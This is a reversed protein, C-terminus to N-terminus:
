QEPQLFPLVRVGKADVQVQIAGGDFTRWIQSGVARYPAEVEPLNWRGDSSFVVHRPTCWAALNPLNSKRSGHHPAMLVECPRRSETLLSDLGPAELDGPLLIQRGLYDVALVLSNANGHGPIGHAPPHLVEVQWGNGGAVHDGARVEHVPVGHENIANRLVQVAKTSKEFMVPSVCVEGVSLKEFLGPLANYHDTDPHSVVVTDLHTIGHSWLFESITRVGASPAGFQGADYLMTQGSPFELLVASGHGVSLLTCDLRMRDHPWRVAVVGVCIWAALLVMCWRRSPRCRPLALWVAMGGYFVWLWWDPPGPMWLHGYPVRHGFNVGRELAWFNVNCLWGCLYGLPPCITGFALVGFGSLLSVTIPLWLVTSIIVAVPSCIHFRAMVLPGTVLWIAVSAITLDIAGRWLKRRMRSLWSLNQLILRELTTKAIELEDDDHPRQPAIWILVAVCLFSLQAGIHFLHAPNMALVVLAAAALSNMGLVRRGLYAAGCAVLVIVTSRVVPPEVDVMMTYFLTVLAAAALALGRPLPTRHLILLLAGALVSIHLGSISLIHITGTTLFAENRSNDLEERLGLLVAAALEAQRPSLYQELVRNGYARLQELLRPLAWPPGPEIVSLCEPIEAQLRSRVRQARLYMSRDMAGPNQPKAPASLRVFCRLRDGSAIEPPRGSVLMTARGSVPQWTAGNRLAVLDVDFRWSESPPTINLPDPAPPPVMRPVGSALAEICVPEAKHRAYCGLDDAAFLYWQCHHWAGATAAVAALLAVNAAMNHQRWISGLWLALGGVSAIWWVPFPPPWFRDLLIGAVAATLVVVLPQYRVATRSLDAAKPPHTPMAAM